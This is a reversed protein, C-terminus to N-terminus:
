DTCDLAALGTPCCDLIECDEADGDVYKVKFLGDATMGTPPPASTLLPRHTRHPVTSLAAPPPTPSNSFAHTHTYTYTHTPRRPIPSVGAGPTFGPSVAICGRRCRHPTASQPVGSGADGQVM